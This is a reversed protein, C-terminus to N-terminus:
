KENVLKQIHDRLEGLNSAGVHVHRVVGLRDVLIVTPIFKIGYNESTQKRGDADQVLQPYKLKYFAAFDKLMDNEQEVSLGGKVTVKGEDDKVQTGVRSLTGAKKDFGYIQHYRTVGLVTFGDDKFEDYLENLKPFAVKCPGCWVAWFDLLVVKGKYNSLKSAKGNLVFAGVIDPAPKGVLDKGIREVKKKPEVKKEQAMGTGALLLFGLAM